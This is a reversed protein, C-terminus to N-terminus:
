FTIANRFNVVVIAGVIEDRNIIDINFDMCAFFETMGSSSEIDAIRNEVDSDFLTFVGHFEGNLILSM